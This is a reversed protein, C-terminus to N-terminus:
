SLLKINAPPRNEWDSRVRRRQRPPGGEAAAQEQLRKRWRRAFLSTAQPPPPAPGEEFFAQGPELRLYVANKRLWQSGGQGAPKRILGEDAADFDVTAVNPLGYLYVAYAYMQTRSEGGKVKQNRAQLVARWKLLQSFTNVNDLVIGSCLLEM